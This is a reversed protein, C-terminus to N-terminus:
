GVIGRQGKAKEREGQEEETDPCLEWVVDDAASQVAAELRNAERIPAVWLAACFAGLIALPLYLGLAGMALASVLLAGQLWYFPQPPQITASLRALRRPGGHHEVVM